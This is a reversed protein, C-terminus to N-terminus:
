GSPLLRPISTPAPFVSSADGRLPVVGILFFPAIDNEYLHVRYMRPIPRESGLGRPLIITSRRGYRLVYETYPVVIDMPGPVLGVSLWAALCLVALAVVGELAWLAVLCWFPRMPRGNPHHLRYFLVHATM